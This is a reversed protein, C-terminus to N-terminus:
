LPSNGFSAHTGGNSEIAIHTLDVNVRVIANAPVVTQLEPVDEGDEFLRAAFYKGTM